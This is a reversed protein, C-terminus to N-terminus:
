VRAPIDQPDNSGYPNLIIPNQSCDVPVDPMSYGAPGTAEVPVQSFRLDIFTNGASKTLISDSM